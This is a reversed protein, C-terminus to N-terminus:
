YCKSYLIFYTKENKKNTKKCHCGMKEPVYPSYPLTNYMTSYTYGRYVYQNGQIAMWVSMDYAYVYM